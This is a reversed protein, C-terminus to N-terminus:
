FSKGGSGRQVTVLFLQVSEYPQFGIKDFEGDRIFPQVRGATCTAGRFEGTDVSFPALVSSNGRIVDPQGKPVLAARSISYGRSM